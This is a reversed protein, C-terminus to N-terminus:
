INATMIMNENKTKMEEDPFHLAGTPIVFTLLESPEGEGPWDGAQFSSVVEKGDGAGAQGEWGQKVIDDGLLGLEGDWLQGQVIQPYYDCGWIFFSGCCFELSM